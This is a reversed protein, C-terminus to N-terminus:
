KLADNEQDANGEQTVEQRGSLVSYGFWLRNVDYYVCHMHHQTASLTFLFYLLGVLFSTFTLCCSLHAHPGCLGPPGRLGPPAM